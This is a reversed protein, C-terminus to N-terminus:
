LWIAKVDAVWHGEGCHNDDTPDDQDRWSWFSYKCNSCAWLVPRQGTIAGRQVLFQQHQQAQYVDCDWYHHEGGACYSCLTDTYLDWHTKTTM